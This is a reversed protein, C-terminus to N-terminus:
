FIRTDSEWWTSWNCSLLASIWTCRRRWTRCPDSSNTIGESCIECWGRKMKPASVQPVIRRDVGWVRYGLFLEFLVIFSIVNGFKHGSVLASFLLSSSFVRSGCVFICKQVLKLHGVRLCGYVSWLWRWLDIHTRLRQGILANGRKGESGSGSVRKWAQSILWCGKWVTPKWARVQNRRKWNSTEEVRDVFFHRWM